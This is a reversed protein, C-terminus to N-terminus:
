HWINAEYIKYHLASNLSGSDQQAPQKLISPYMVKGQIENNIKSVVFSHILKPPVTIKYSYNQFLM